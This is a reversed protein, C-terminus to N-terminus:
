VEADGIGRKGADPFFKGSFLVRTKNRAMQCTFPEGATTEKCYVLVLPVDEQKCGRETQRWWM